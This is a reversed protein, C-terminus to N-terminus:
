YWRLRPRVDQWTATPDRCVFIEQNVEWTAAYPHSHVAFFEVEDFYETLFERKMGIVVAAKMEHSDPVWYRHNNHGSVAEPLGYDHRYYNIAGAKSYNNTLIICGRREEPTLTEFAGAVNEVMERWGFRLAYHIPLDVRDGRQVKVQQMLGIANSYPIFYEIPLVPLGFPLLVIGALAISAVIGAPLWIRKLRSCLREFAIAGGAFLLPIIPYVYYVKSRQMIYVLLFVLAVIGLIRYKKKGKGFLFYLLGGAWVPMVLPNLTLIIQWLFGVMSFPYISYEQTVRIFELTPWGHVVQWIVHPLFMLGAIVAGAYSWISTLLSRYRTTVLGALLAFGFVLMTMKNQLGFGAVVGFVLWWRSDGGHIINILILMAIGIIIIDLANMSYFSFIAWIGPAAVMALATLVQAFQGGGLKRTIGSALLVSLGGTLAALIRLWIYSEGFLSRIIFAGVAVLPPHDVYGFDLHKGCEIYYFEDGFPGYNWATAILLTSM